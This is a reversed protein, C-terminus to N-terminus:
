SSPCTFIGDAETLTWNAGTTLNSSTVIESEYSNCFMGEANTVSRTDFNSLDFNTGDYYSDAFMGSMNIVNSTDWTNLGTIGNLYCGYFMDSMNKVKSTNLAAVNISAASYVFLGSSDPNAYLIEKETVIYLHKYLVDSEALPMMENDVILAEVSGDQNASVDIITEAKTKDVTANTLVTVSTIDYPAYGNESLLNYFEEGTTLMAYNKNTITTITASCTGENGAYDKIHATYVGNESIKLADEKSTTHDWSYNNTDIDTDTSIISLTKYDTVEGNPNIRITCTPATTDVREIVVKTAESINGSADKVFAYYTGNAYSNITTYTAASSAEWASDTLSPKTSASKVIYGAIGSGQVDDKASIRITKNEKSWEEDVKAFVITPATTDATDVPKEETYLGTVYFPESSTGTGEIIADKSLTIVPKIGLSSTKVNSQLSNQATYIYVNNASAHSSTYYSSSEKLFFSTNAVGTVAGAYMLDDASLIGIKTLVNNSECTSSPNHNEVRLTSVYTNNVTKEECFTGDTKIYKEDKQLDTYLTNLNTAINAYTSAKYIGDYVLNISGDNNSSLVRWTYNTGSSDTGFKIYNDPNGRMYYKVNGSNDVKVLGTQSPITTYSYQSESLVPINKLVQYAASKTSYAITKNHLAESLVIIKNQLGGTIETVDYDIWTRLNFTKSEGVSLTGEDLVYSKVVSTESEDVLETEPLNSEITPEVYTDGSLSVKVKSINDMNSGNLVNITTLYTADVTCTNTLTYTYPDNSLGNEDKQPAANTISVNGNDTMTVKLCGTKVANTETGELDTQFAAYSIGTLLAVIAVIGLLTIVLRRKTEKDM